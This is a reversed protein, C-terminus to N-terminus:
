IGPFNPCVLVSIFSHIAKNQNSALTSYRKLKGFASFKKTIQKAFIERKGGFRMWYFEPLTIFIAYEPLETSVGWGVGRWDFHTRSEGALLVRTFIDRAIVPNNTRCGQLLVTLMISCSQYCYQEIM